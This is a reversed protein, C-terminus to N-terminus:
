GLSFLHFFPGCWIYNKLRSKVSQYSIVGTIPFPNFNPKINKKLFDINGHFSLDFCSFIPLVHIKCTSDVFVFYLLFCIWYNANLKINIMVGGCTLQWVM